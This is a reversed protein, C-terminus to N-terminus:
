RSSTLGRTEKVQERDGERQSTSEGKLTDFLSRAEEYTHLIVTKSNLYVILRLMFGWRYKIKLSALVSTLFKFDRRKRLTISSRNPFIQVGLEEIGTGSQETFTELVKAKIIWTPIKVLIDRPYKSAAKFPGIRYASTIAITLECDSGACATFLETDHGVLDEGEPGEKM